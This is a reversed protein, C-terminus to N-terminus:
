GKKKSNARNHALHYNYWKLSTEVTKLQDLTLDLQYKGNPLVTPILNNDQM